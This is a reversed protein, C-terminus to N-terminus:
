KHHEPGGPHQAPHQQPHQQQHQQPHQQQHQQPHQQPNQQQHQQPNQQQRPQQTHQQQPRGANPNAGGPHALPATGAPHGQQNFRSGGVRNMAVTAPKGNNVSALQNRDKGATQEHTQQDRTPQIHQERMAVQEEPRPTATVGGPGNFSARSNVTINNVVTRNVYTNHIVTTNINSVATNYRFSGGQWIGGGYGYGGYGYGYNVGGYFGIHEGWYGPHWGYFGGSYGWYAPTWLFGVRPPMVWVGPVWFYGDTGYAWYGPTWLYGDIPCPPQSYVPLAPPAIRISIGVSVQAYNKSNCITVALLLLIFLRLKKMIQIKIKLTGIRHVITFISMLECSDFYSSLNLWNFVFAILIGRYICEEIRCFNIM